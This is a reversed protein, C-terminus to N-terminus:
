ITINWSEDLEFSTIGNIIVKLTKPSNYVHDSFYYNLKGYPFNIKNLSTHNNGIEMFRKTVDRYYNGFGYLVLLNKDNTSKEHPKWSTFILEWSWEMYRSTFWNSNPHTWNKTSLRQLTVPDHGPMEEDLTNTVLWDYMNKYFERPLSRIREKSVVFQSCGIKGNTFDGCSEINGFYPFMCNGWWGSKLMPEIQKQVSGLIANNFSWYGPTFSAKYKADFLPDNLIDILSGDHYAKKDYQHVQIVHNPLVDYFEYIFKLLNTEGKAKNIASFPEKDPTEKYYIIHPFKLKETWSVDYDYYGVIVLYNTDTWDLHKM